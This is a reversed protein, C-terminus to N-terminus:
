PLTQRGRERSQQVASAIQVEGSTVRAVVQTSSSTGQVRLVRPMSLQLSMCGKHNGGHTNKCSSATQCFATVQESGTVVAKQMLRDLLCRDFCWRRLPMTKSGARFALMRAGNASFPGTAWAGWACCRGGVGPGVPPPTPIEGKAIWRSSPQLLPPRPPSRCACWPAHTPLLVTAAHAPKHMSAHIHTRTLRQTPAHM